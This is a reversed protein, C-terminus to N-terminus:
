DLERITRSVAGVLLAVLVCGIGSAVATSPGWADAAFAIAMTSIPHLGRDATWVAMVRGRYEEETHIQLLTQSIARYAMHAFGHLALAGLSLWVWSSLGFVVTAVGLLVIAFLTILGKRTVDDAAAVYITAFIAGIAPAGFLLGLGGAGIGLVDKAFIPALTQQAFTFLIPVLSLIALWGVVTNRRLYGYGRFGEILGLGRRPPQRWHPNQALTEPDLARLRVRAMSASGIGYMAAELFLASAPGSLATATGALAPGALKSITWVSGSLAVANMLHERAVVSPILAQRAPQQIAGVVGEFVSAIIFHWVEIYGTLVLVGLIAAILASALQSSVILAKRDFRDALVGGMLGIFLMPVQKAAQVSGMAIASGTMDYVIWSRVVIETWNATSGAIISGMLWRFNQSELSSVVRPLRGPAERSTDPPPAPPARGDQSATPGPASV